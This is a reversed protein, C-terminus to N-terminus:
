LWVGQSVGVQAGRQGETGRDRLDGEPEGDAGEPVSHGRWTAEATRSVRGQAQSVGQVMPTVLHFCFLCPRQLTFAVLHFRRSAPPTRGGLSPATLTRTKKGWTFVNRTPEESSYTAMGLSELM